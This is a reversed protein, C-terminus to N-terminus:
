FLAREKLVLYGSPRTSGFLNPYPQDIDKILLGQDVIRPGCDKCACDKIWLGQLCEPPHGPPASYTSSPSPPWTWGPWQGCHTGHQSWTPVIYSTSEPLLSMLLLNFLILILLFLGLLNVFVWPTRTSGQSVPVAGGQLRSWFMKLPIKALFRLHFIDGPLFDFFYGLYRISMEGTEFLRVYEENRIRLM